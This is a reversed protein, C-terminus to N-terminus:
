EILRLVAQPEANFRKTSYCCVDRAMEEGTPGDMSGNFFFPHCLVSPLPFSFVPARPFSGFRCVCSLSLSFFFLSPTGYLIYSVFCVLGLPPYEPALSFFPRPTSLLVNEVLRVSACLSSVRPRLPSLSSTEDGDNDCRIWKVFSVRPVPSISGFPLPVYVCSFLFSFRM